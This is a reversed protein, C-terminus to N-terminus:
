LSRSYTAKHPIDRRVAVTFRLLWLFLRPLEQVSGGCTKPVCESFVSTDAGVGAGLAAFFVGWFLRSWLVVPSVLIVEISKPHRLLL